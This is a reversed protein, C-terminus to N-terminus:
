NDREAKRNTDRLPQQTLSTIYGSYSTIELSRRNNHQLKQPNLTYMYIAFATFATILILGMGCCFRITNLSVVHVPCSVCIPGQGAAVFEGVATGCM